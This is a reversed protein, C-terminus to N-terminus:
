EASPSDQGWLKELQYFDRQADLMVHVVVSSLDVVVWEGFEAGEIGLPQQEARKAEVEVNQAIAKVHTKSNGSCVIMFDTITSKNRVDMIEIDRAKMDELKEQCFTVLQETQM